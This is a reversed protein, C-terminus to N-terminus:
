FVYIKNFTLKNLEKKLVRLNVKNLEKSQIKNNSADFNCLTYGEISYSFCKVTIKVYNERMEIKLPVTYHEKNVFRNYELLLAKDNTTTQAERHNQHNQSVDYYKELNRLLIGSNSERASSHISLVDMNEFKKIYSEGHCGRSLLKELDSIKNINNEELFDVVKKAVNRLEEYKIISKELEM